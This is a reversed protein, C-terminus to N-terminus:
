RAANAQEQHNPDSPQQGHTSRYWALFDAQRALAAQDPPLRWDGDDAAGAATAARVAPEDAPPLDEIDIAPTPALAATGNEWADALAPPPPAPPASRSPWYFTAVLGAACLLLVAAAWWRRRHGRATAAAPRRREDARAKLAPGREVPQGALASERLRALAALREPPLERLQQQLTEALQRWGSADPQGDPLRPCAAALAQQYDAAALGLAQAAQAEDLGAVLRLLLALRDSAHLGALHTAPPQTWLPAPPKAPVEQRLGPVAALLRWFRQPWDALPQEGAQRSFARMAASVAQDGGAQNGVQLGALLSARREVGRLFASVAPPSGTSKEAM